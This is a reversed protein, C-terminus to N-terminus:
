YPRGLVRGLDDSFICQFDRRRAGRPIYVEGKRAARDMKHMESVSCMRCSYILITSTSEQCAAVFQVFDEEAEQKRRAKDFARTAEVAEEAEEYCEEVAGGAGDCVAKMEDLQEEYQANSACGFLLWAIVVILIVLKIRHTTDGTYM